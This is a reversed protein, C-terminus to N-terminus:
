PQEREECARLTEAMIAMQQEPKSLNWFNPDAEACRDLLRGVHVMAVPTLMHEPRQASVLAMFEAIPGDRM